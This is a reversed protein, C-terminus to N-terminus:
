EGTIIFAKALLIYAIIFMIISVTLLCMYVIPDKKKLETNVIEIYLFIYISNLLLVMSIIFLGIAKCMIFYPSLAIFVLGLIIVYIRYSLVKKFKKCYLSSLIYFHKKVLKYVRTKSLYPLVVSCYIFSILFRFPSYIINKLISVYYLLKMISTILKSLVPYVSLNFMICEILRSIYHIKFKGLVSKILSFLIM